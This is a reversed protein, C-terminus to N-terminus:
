MWKELPILFSSTTSITKYGIGSSDPESKKGINMPPLLVLLQRWTRLILIYEAIIKTQQLM